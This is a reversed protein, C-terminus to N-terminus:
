VLCEGHSVSPAAETTLKTQKNSVRSSSASPRFLSFRMCVFVGRKYITMMVIVCECARMCQCIGREVRVLAISEGSHSCQNSSSLSVSSSAFLLRSQPHLLPLAVRCFMPAGCVYAYLYSCICHVCVCVELVFRVNFVSSICINRHFVCGCYPSYQM